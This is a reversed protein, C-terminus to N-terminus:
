AKLWREARELIEAHRKEKDDPSVWGPSRGKLVKLADQLDGLKEDAKNLTDNAADLEDDDNDDDNRDEAVNLAASAADLEEDAKAIAEELQKINM